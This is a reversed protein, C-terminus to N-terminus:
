DINKIFEYKKQCWEWIIDPHNKSESNIISPSIQLTNWIIFYYLNNFIIGYVNDINITVFKFKKRDSSFSIIDKTNSSENLLIKPITELQSNFNFVESFLTIYVNKEDYNSFKSKIKFERCYFYIILCLILSYNEKEEESLSSILIKFKKFTKIFSRLSIQREWSSDSKNYFNLIDLFNKEFLLERKDSSSDNPNTIYHNPNYYKKYEIKIYESYDIEPLQFEIDFFKEFYEENKDEKLYLSLVTNKLQEKNVLFIFIINKVGFFHKVVELLSIAYDPRCRDLEDIIIIKKKSDKNLENKFDKVAKKYKEYEDMEPYKITEAESILNEVSEMVKKSEIGIVTKIIPSCIEFIFPIIKKSVNKWNLKILEEGLSLIGDELIGKDKFEGLLSKMPNSFYDIEWVNIKEVKYDENNQELYEKLAEGFYTKGMGWPADIFIRQIYDPNNELEKFNKEYDDQKDSLEEQNKFQSKILNSLQEVFGKRSDILNNYYEM